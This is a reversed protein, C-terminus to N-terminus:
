DQSTPPPPADFVKKELKAVSSAVQSVQTGLKEMSARTEQQFQTLGTQVSSVSGSLSRIMDETSMSGAPPAGGGQPRPMYQQRPQMGGDNAPNRWRFNPHDRTGPNYVNSFPDYRPQMVTARSNQGQFGVMKVEEVSDEQLTPCEDTYHGNGTCIGCVVGLGSGKGSTMLSKVMSTLSDVKGELGSSDAEAFHVKRVPRRATPRTEDALDKFIKQAEAVTKNLLSGGSASNVMNKDSPKLGSHFHVLLQEEPYGHQPCDAVLKNFRQLYEYFTEGDDQLVNSIEKKLDNAVATPFYKDLFTDRMEDWTSISKSPLCYFWDWAADKLTFPFARLRLQEEDLGKPKMNNCIRDFGVLHRNPDETKMGHFTPLLNIWAPKLEVFDDEEVDALVIAMPAEKQTSTVASRLTRRPDVAMTLAEEEFLGLLDEAELEFEKARARKKKERRVTTLFREIEPNLDVVENASKRTRVLSM